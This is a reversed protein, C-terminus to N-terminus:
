SIFFFSVVEEAVFVLHNVHDLLGITSAVNSIGNDYFVQRLKQPCNRYKTTKGLSYVHLFSSSIAFCVKM